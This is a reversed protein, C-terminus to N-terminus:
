LFKVGTCQESIEWLKKAKELSIFSEKVKVPKRKNFFLGSYQKAEEAEALYLITDAGKEPSILFWSFWNFFFKMISNSEQSFNTKVIGPHLANIEINKIGKAQLRRQMEQTFLIVYLKANGYALMSSYKKEMNFDEYNPNAMKHAMSSTNVIRGDESKKLKDFLLSTLLFPALHNVVITKEFGEKTVARQENMVGGANNILVDLKEYKSNFEEAMKRVDALSSMDAILLDVKNNGSALIIEKRTAEAKEFNRGHLIIHAGKQALVTAAVKGIGSTAGTILVIKDKM